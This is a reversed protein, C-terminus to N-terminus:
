GLAGNALAKQGKSAFASRCLPWRAAKGALKEGIRLAPPSAPM